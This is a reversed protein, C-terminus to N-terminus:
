LVHAARCLGLHAPPDRVYLAHPRFPM